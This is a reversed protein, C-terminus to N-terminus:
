RYYEYYIKSGFEFYGDRVADLKKNADQLSLAKFKTNYEEVLGLHIFKNIADQMDFDLQCSFKNEFWDEIIKDLEKISHQM